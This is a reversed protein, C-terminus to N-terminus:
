HTAKALGEGASAVDDKIHDSDDVYNGKQGDNRGTRDHQDLGENDGLEEEEVGTLVDDSYHDATLLHSEGLNWGNGLM